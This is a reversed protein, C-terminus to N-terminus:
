NIQDRTISSSQSLASTTKKYEEQSIVRAIFIQQYSIPHAYRWGEPAAGESTMRIYGLTRIIEVKCGTEEMMERIAAAEATEGDEIHGGPIEMRMGSRRLNQTFVIGGDVLPADFATATKEIPNAMSSLVLEIKNPLPLYPVDHEVYAVVEGTSNM